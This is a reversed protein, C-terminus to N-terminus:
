VERHVYSEEEEEERAVAAHKCFESIAMVARARRASAMSSHTVLVVGATLPVASLESCVPAHADREEHAPRRAWPGCSPVGCNLAQRGASIAIREGRVYSRMDVMVARMSRRPLAGRYAVPPRTCASGSRQLGVPPMTPVFQVAGCGLRCEGLVRGACFARWRGRQM